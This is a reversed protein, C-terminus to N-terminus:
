INFWTDGDTCSYASGDGVGVCCATYSGGPTVVVVEFNTSICGGHHFAPATVSMFTAVMLVSLIKRM